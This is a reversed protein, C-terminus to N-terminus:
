APYTRYGLGRAARRLDTDWCAVDIADPGGVRLLAALHVADYGRLAHREALDGAQLVRPWDVAVKYADEWLEAVRAIVGDRRAVPIRRDRIAAGVAARLETYAVVATFTREAEVALARMQASGDEALVLKVLASTDAYLIM